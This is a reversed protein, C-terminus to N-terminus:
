DVVLQKVCSEIGTIRETLSGYQYTNFVRTPWSFTWFRSLNRELELRHQRDRPLSRHNIRLLAPKGVRTSERRPKV